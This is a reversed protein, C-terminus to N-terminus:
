TRNVRRSMRAIQNGRRRKAVAKTQQGSHGGTHRGVRHMSVEPSSFADHVAHFLQHIWSMAPIGTQPIRRNRKVTVPKPKFPIEETEIAKTM